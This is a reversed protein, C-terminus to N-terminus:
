TPRQRVWDAYLKRLDVAVERVVGEIRLAAREIEDTVEALTTTQEPAAAALEAHRLRLQEVGAVICALPSNISDAVGSTLTTVVASDLGAALQELTAALQRRLSATALANKIKIRMDIVDVPKTVYDTAGRRLAETVSETTPYATMILVEADPHHAKVEALLVLGDGDPLIKDITAVDVRHDRIAARADAASNATVVEPRPAELLAEILRCQEPEDDVILVTQNM